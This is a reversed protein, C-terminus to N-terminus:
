MVRHGERWVTRVIPTEGDRVHVLDARKGVAIEGRDELGAARAPTKTVTAIADPLSIHAAHKPLQFAAMVLSAPIYDSSFIDLLGIEALESAAVNGSHSGGRILNPAGMVVSIGARHSADAAERTTPFEAIAAGDALSEEVHEITTDDHSALTISNERAIDVLARRHPIAYQEHQRYREQFFEQLEDESLQM